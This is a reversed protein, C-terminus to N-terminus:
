REVEKALGNVVMWAILADRDVEFAKGDHHIVLGDILFTEGRAFFRELNVIRIGSDVTM